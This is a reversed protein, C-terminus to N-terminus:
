SRRGIIKVGHPLRFEPQEIDALIEERGDAHQRIVQTGRQFTVPLGLEKQRRIAEQAGKALEGSLALKRINAELKVDALLEDHMKKARKADEIAGKMGALHEDHMQKARKMDEMAGKAGALLEDRERKARKMDEKVDALPKAFRLKEGRVSEKGASGNRM